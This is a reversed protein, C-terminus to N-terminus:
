EKTKIKKEVIAVMDSVTKVLQAEEDTIKIKLKEELDMVIDISDLSDAGLDDTLKSDPKIKEEDVHLHEVLIKKVDNYVDM